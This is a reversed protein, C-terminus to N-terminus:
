SRASDAVRDPEAVPEMRNPAFIALLVAAVISLAGLTISATNMPGIFADKAGDAISNALEPQGPALREAVQLAEALTNTIHEKISGAAAAVEQAQGLQGASELQAATQRLEAQATDATASVDRTYGSALLSGAIAIGIASGLERSTDNIASGVGQNDAPTNVMIATTSPATAIGLGLAFVILCVAVTWYESHHILGILMVGVGMVFMGAALIIRLNVKVAIWNGILSCVMVVIVMPFLAVASKLPSYGFVLQLYQLLVLFLGFAAMFQVAVSFSGAAFARNRFLRVDLLPEPRHLQSYWFLAVLGIGAVFAILTLPDFWGRHPSEILAFVLLAVALASTASGWWDFRPSTSDRSTAITCSLAATAAAAIAFTLFISHWSFFELLVGTVFFGAIGGVGAVGAWISVALPRKADPVGSTILSLTAPMVFAAGVGTLCRAAIFQTPDSVWIPLLSGIAFVVLGGILVERRGFRDGIAGAPLLLAALTLTYGDILWTVQNSNAQVAPAIDPIATNLSAMAAIVMSVAVCAVFILWVTRFGIKDNPSAGM